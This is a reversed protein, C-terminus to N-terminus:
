ILYAFRVTYLVDLKRQTLKNSPTKKERKNELQLSWIRKIDCAACILNFETSVAKLGRTLFTRAGKNEKIDGIVAEVSQERIRYHERAESTKMKARM